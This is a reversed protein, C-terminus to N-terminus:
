RKNCNRGEHAKKQLSPGDLTDKAEKSELAKILESYSDFLPMGALDRYLQLEEESYLIQRVDYFSNTEILENM